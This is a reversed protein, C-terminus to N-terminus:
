QSTSNKVLIDTLEKPSPIKMLNMKILIETVKESDKLFSYSAALYPYVQHLDPNIKLANLFYENALKYEGKHYYAYGLNFYPDPYNSYIGLANKFDKIAKDWQSLYLNCVGRNNYATAFQPNIELSKNHYEIATRFDNKQQYAIGINSYTRYDDKKISTSILFDKIALDNLGNNMYYVGRALYPRSRQPSKSISDTWMKDPYNWLENRNYSLLTYIVVILGIIVYKIKSIKKLSFVITTIVIALSFIPLYLRHEVFYDRIPIISSEVSLTIFFWLISFSVLPIKSLYKIAVIMLSIIILLSIISRINIISKYLIYDHDINQSIPIAMFRIYDVLVNIQTFFYDQRSIEDAEIPLGIEIYAFFGVAGYIAILSTILKWNTRNKEDKIFIIEYIIIALPITIAIQKSQISFIISATSLMFLPISFLFKKFLNSESQLTIIRGKAYFIISLLYFLASLSSMRQTIYTVAQTQLPHAIFILGVLFCFIRKESSTYKNNLTPTNLTIKTLIMVLISNLLHIIINVIHYGTVDLGGLNYNIAISLYSVYRENLSYLIPLSKFNNLEKILPNEIISDYDDFYFPVNFTNSYIILGLIIIILYFLPEIIKDIKKLSFSALTNIEHSKKSKSKSM